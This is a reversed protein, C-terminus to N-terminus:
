ANQLEKVTTLFKDQLNKEGMWHWMFYRNGYSLSNIKSAAVPQAICEDFEARTMRCVEQSRRNAKATVVISDGDSSTSLAHHHRFFYAPTNWNEGLSAIEKHLRNDFMTM